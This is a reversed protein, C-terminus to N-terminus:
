KRLPPLKLNFNQEIFAIAEPSDWEKVGYVKQLIRGQADVLLTLPIRNGGLMNELFVQSDIFHPFATKAIDLFAKAKDRYDDTSIGIMNISKNARRYLRDLSGMEQRCPACWSAWMNIILPKGRFSSLKQSEGSLGQMLAERLPAGIEVEGPTKARAPIAALCLCLFLTLLTKM